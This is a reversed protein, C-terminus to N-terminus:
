PTISPRVVTRSRDYAISGRKQSLMRALERQVPASVNTSGINAKWLRPMSKLIAVAEDTISTDRLDIIELNRARILERLGDDTIAAGRLSVSRITDPLDLDGLDHDGIETYGLELHAHLQGGMDAVLDAYTEHSRSANGGCGQGILFIFAFLIYLSYSYKM